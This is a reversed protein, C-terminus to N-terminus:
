IGAGAARLLWKGFAALRKQATFANGLRWFLEHARPKRGVGNPPMALVEHIGPVRGIGAAIRGIGQGQLGMVPARQLNQLGSLIPILTTHFEHSVKHIVLAHQLSM